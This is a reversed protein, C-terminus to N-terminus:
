GQAVPLSALLGEMAATYTTDHAKHGAYIQDVITVCGVHERGNTEPPLDAGKQGFARLISGRITNRRPLSASIVLAM